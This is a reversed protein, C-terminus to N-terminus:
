ITHSEVIRYTTKISLEGLLLRRHVGKGKSTDAAEKVKGKTGEDRGGM